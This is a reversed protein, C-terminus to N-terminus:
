QKRLGGVACQRLHNGGMQCFNRRRQLQEKLREGRGKTQIGLERFTDMSGALQYSLVSGLPAEGYQTQVYAIDSTSSPLMPRLCCDDNLKHKHTAIVEKSLKQAAPGRTEYLSCSIATKKRGSPDKSNEVMTEMITKPM